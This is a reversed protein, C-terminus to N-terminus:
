GNDVDPLTVYLTIVHEFKDIIKQLKQLVVYRQFEVEETNLCGAVYIKINDYFDENRLTVDDKQLIKRQNFKDLAVFMM